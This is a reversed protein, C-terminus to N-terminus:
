DLLGPHNKWIMRCFKWATNLSLSLFFFSAMTTQLITVAEQGRGMKDRSM